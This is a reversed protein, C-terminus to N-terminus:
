ARLLGADPSWPQNGIWYGKVAPEQSCSGARFADARERARDERPMVVDELHQPARLKQLVRERRLSQRPENALLKANGGLVRAHFRFDHRHEENIRRPMGLHAANEGARERGSRQGLQFGRGFKWRVHFRRRDTAFLPRISMM